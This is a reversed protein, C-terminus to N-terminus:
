SWDISSFLQHRSFVEQFAAALPSHGFIVEDEFSARLPGDDMMWGSAVGKMEWGAM